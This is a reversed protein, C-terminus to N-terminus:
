IGASEYKKLGLKWLIKIILNLVIIWIFMILIGRLSQVIDLRGIFIQAPVFFTYIFPFTYLVSLMPAPLLDLPFYAGALFKILTNVSYSTGNIETVWFSIFGVIVSLYFKILYALVFYVLLIFFLSINRTFVLEHRFIIIWVSATVITVLFAFINRGIANFITFKIYNIPKIIFNSLRGSHIDKQINREYDYNASLYRFIWGFVAYSIMTPYDYGNIIDTAKFAASWIVVQGLLDFYNGVVYALIFFRYNLQEQFENLITRWYKKM